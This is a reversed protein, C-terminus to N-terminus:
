CMEIWLRDDSDQQEYIQQFGSALSQSLICGGLWAYLGGGEPCEINFSGDDGLGEENKALLEGFRKEFREGFGEYQANGGHIMIENLLLPQKEDKTARWIQIIKNLCLEPLKMEDMIHDVCREDDNDIGKAIFDQRGFEINVIGHNKLATQEYFPIIRTMSYGCDIVIGTLM